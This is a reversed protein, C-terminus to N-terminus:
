LPNGDILRQILQFMEQAKAQNQGAGSFKDPHWRLREKKLHAEDLNLLKGV